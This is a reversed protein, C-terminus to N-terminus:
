LLRIAVPDDADQEDSADMESVADVQCAGGEEGTQVLTWRAPTSGYDLMPECVIEVQVEGQICEIVRVLLHEADYDTPPRTHSGVGRTNPGPGGGPPAM